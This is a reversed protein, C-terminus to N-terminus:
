YAMGLPKAVDDLLSCWHFWTDMPLRAAVRDLLFWGAMVLAADVASM